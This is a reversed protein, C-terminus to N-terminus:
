DRSICMYPLATFVMETRIIIKNYQNNIMYKHQALEIFFYVVNLYEARVITM